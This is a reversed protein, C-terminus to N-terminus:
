SRVLCPYNLSEHLMHMEEIVGDVHDQCAIDDDKLETKRTPEEM